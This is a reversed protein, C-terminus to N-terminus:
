SLSPLFLGSLDHMPVKDEVQLGEAYRAGIRRGLFRARAEIGKWYDSTSILTKSKKQSDAEYFQSAYAALADMKLDFYESIDVIIDPEIWREQAYSLFLKPRWAEYDSPWNRLGSLFFAEKCIRYAVGHDPHRDQEAPGILVDPRYIRIQDIVKSKSETNLELMADPLALNERHAAGIIKAANHSEQDRLEPTGNSAMEGRTLDLLIIEDGKNAHKALLGAIAIEIDDPHAGVAMIKM